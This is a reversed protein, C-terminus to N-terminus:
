TKLTTQRNAQGYKRKGHGFKSSRLARGGVKSSGSPVHIQLEPYEAEFLREVDLLMNAIQHESMDMEKMRNVMAGVYEQYPDSLRRGEDLLGQKDIFHSKALEGVNDHYTNFADYHADRVGQERTAIEGELWRDLEAQDQSLRSQFAGSAQGMASPNFAVGSRNAWDSFARKSAVIQRERNEMEADYQRQLDETHLTGSPGVQFKDNEDYGSVNLGMVHNFSADDLPTDSLGVLDGTGVALKYEGAQEDWQFWDGNEDQAWGEGSVWNDGQKFENFDGGMEGVPEAFFNGEGEQEEYSGYAGAEEDYKVIGGQVTGFEGTPDEPYVNQQEGGLDPEMLGPDYMGPQAYQGMDQGYQGVTEDTTAAAPLAFQPGTPMQAAAAFPNYQQVLSATTQAQPAALGGGYMMQPSLGGGMYGQQQQQPAGGMMGGFGALPGGAISGGTYGMPGSYAQRVFRPAAQVQAQPMPAQVPQETQGQQQPTTGAANSKETSPINATGGM